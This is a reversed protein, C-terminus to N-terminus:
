MRVRKNKLIKKHKILVHHTITAQIIQWIGGVIWYIQIGASFIVSMLVFVLMMINQTKNNKKMAAQQHINTRNKDRRKTLLRPYIQQFAAAAAAFMMLPLYQFHGSLLEKYSTASFNIGLWTTSKLHPVGGIIRWISLFIPMTIFLTGIAGLPSVGEKKYLESTEQRKRQEMQKNGKYNVYKADIIAKKAQLEQQKTQQLVSKFTLGFALIRLVFVIVAISILSEWGHMLPFANTIAVGLKSIPWVFLGYFPGVGRTWAQGWTIIPIYITGTLLSDDFDLTKPSAMWKFSDDAKITKYTKNTKKDFIIKGKNELANAKSYKGLTFDDVVNAPITDAGKKMNLYALAFLEVQKQLTYAKTKKLEETNFETELVSTTNFMEYGSTSKVAQTVSNNINALVMQAYEVRAYEKTKAAPMTNNLKHEVGDIYIHTLKTNILGGGSTPAVYTKSESSLCLFNGNKKYVGNKQHLFPNLTEGNSKKIKLSVLENTGKVADSMAIEGNNTIQKRIDDLQGGTNSDKNNLWVNTTDKNFNYIGKPNETLSFQSVHPSIEGEGNYFEVGSGVHKDPKITFTQACGWMSFFFLSFMMFIKSFKWTIKFASKPDKGKTGKSGKFWDYEKSRNGYSM